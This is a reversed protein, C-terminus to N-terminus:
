FDGPFRWARAGSKPMASINQRSFNTIINGADDASFVQISLDKADHRPAISVVVGDNTLYVREVYAYRKDFIKMDDSVRMKSRWRLLTSEKLLGMAFEREAESRFYIHRLSDEIRMPSPMLLEACRMATINEDGSHPGYHYINEFNMKGLFFSDDDGIEVEARQMNLNSFAVGTTTLLTKADFVLMALTPAHTDGRYYEDQKRIGEIHYQTPTRPRFYTRVQKHARDTVNVIEQQAVDLPRVSKSASRSLLCGSNLIEVINQIPDHRFILSPWKSRFSYTSKGLKDSWDLIHQDVVSSSLAM